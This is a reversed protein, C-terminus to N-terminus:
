AVMRRTMAIVAPTRFMALGSAIFILGLLIVAARVFLDSYFNKSTKAIDQQTATQQTTSQQAQKAQDTELQVLQKMFASVNQGMATTAKDIAEPVTMSGQASGTQGKADTGAVPKNAGFDKGEGTGVDGSGVPAPAGILSAPAGALDGSSGSGIESSGNDAVPPTDGAPAVGDSSTSTGAGLGPGTYAGSNTGDPMTYNQSPQNYEPEYPSSAQGGYQPPVFNDSPKGFRDSFSNGGTSYGYQQAERAFAQSSATGTSDITKTANFYLANGTDGSRPANGSLLDGAWDYAQQSYSGYNYGNFQQPTVVSNISSGFSGDQLRNYMTAAVAFQGPISASEGSIVRALKDQSGGIIGSWM